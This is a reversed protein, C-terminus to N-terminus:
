EVEDFFCEKCPMLFGTENERKIHAGYAYFCSYSQEWKTQLFPCEDSATRCTGVGEPTTPQTITKTKM